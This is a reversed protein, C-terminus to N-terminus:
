KALKPAKLADDVATDIEKASDEGGYGVFVKAIVGDRGVIVTTPIGQVMYSEMVKGDKDLPVTFTYHNENLFAQVVNKKEQDNVAYVKLGKDAREKDASLKQLHPLSHQCPGCWTAWFDLVVVDGKLASLKVTKGDLTDLTFDKAAKGVLSNTDNDDARAPLTLLGAALLGGAALALLGLISRRHNRQM